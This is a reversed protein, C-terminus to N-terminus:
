SKKKTAAGAAGKPPEAPPSGGKLYDRL